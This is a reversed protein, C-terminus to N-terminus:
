TGDDESSGNPADFGDRYCPWCPLDDAGWTPRCECNDPRDEVDSHDGDVETDARAGGDTAPLRVVGTTHAGLNGDIEDRDIALPVPEKGTAVETRRIHKCKVARKEHDPCTCREEFLDVTYTSGSQSVVKYLGPADRVEGLDPLVSHYETVARRTRPEVDISENADTTNDTMATRMLCGVRTSWWAPKPVAGFVGLLPDTEVM